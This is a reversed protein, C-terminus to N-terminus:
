MGSFFEAHEIKNLAANKKADAIAEEILEVGIVKKAAKNVFLGISGTGCYLDYVM